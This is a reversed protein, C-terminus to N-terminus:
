PFSKATRCNARPKRRGCVAARLRAATVPAIRRLAELVAGEGIDGCHIIHEVGKFAELAEPRMLGHTDSILGVKM